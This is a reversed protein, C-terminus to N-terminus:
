RPASAAVRERALSDVWADLDRLDWMARSGEGFPRVPASLHGAKRAREFRDRSLGLYRASEDLNLLRVTADLPRAM